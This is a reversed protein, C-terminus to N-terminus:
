MESNLLSFYNNLNRARKTYIKSGTKDILQSNSKKELCGVEAKAVALVKEPTAKVQAMAQERKIM